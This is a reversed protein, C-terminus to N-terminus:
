LAGPTGEPPTSEDINSLIYAWTWNDVSKEFLNYCTWKAPIIINEQEGNSNIFLSNYTNKWYVVTPYGSIGNLKLLKLTENRFNEIETDWGAKILKVDNPKNNLLNNETKSDSNYFLYKTM